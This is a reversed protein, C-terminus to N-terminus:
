QATDLIVDGERLPQTWKWGTTTTVIRDWGNIRMNDLLIRESPDNRAEVEALAEVKVNFYHVPSRAIEKSDLDDVGRGRTTFVFGYPTAAHREVIDKAMALAVEVDWADIPKTSAEATFSGPSFFTVFHKQAVIETM